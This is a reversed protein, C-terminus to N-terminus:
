VKNRIRQLLLNAKDIHVFESGAALAMLGDSDHRDGILVLSTSSIGMQAAVAFLADPLPKLAGYTQCHVVASWGDDLGVSKLKDMCPHDSLVARPIRFEDCAQILKSASDRVHHPQYMQATCDAYRQADNKNAFSKQIHKQIDKKRFGRNRNCVQMMEIFLSITQPRAIFDKTSLSAITYDFDFVIGSIPM